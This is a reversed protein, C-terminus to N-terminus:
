RKWNNKPYPTLRAWDSGQKHNFYCFNNACVQYTNNFTSNSKCKTGCGSCYYNPHDKEDIKKKAFVDYNIKFDIWSAMPDKKKEDKNTFEQEIIQILEKQTNSNSDHGRFNTVLYHLVDKRKILRLKMESPRYYTRFSDCFVDPYRDQVEKEAMCEKKNEFWKLNVSSTGRIIVDFMLKKCIDCDLNSSIPCKEITNKWLISVDWKPIDKISVKGNFHDHLTQNFPPYSLLSKKVGGVGDIDNATRKM